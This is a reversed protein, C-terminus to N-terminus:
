WYDICFFFNSIVIINDSSLWKHNISSSAVDHTRSKTSRWYSRSRFTCWSNSAGYHCWMSWAMYLSTRTTIQQSPGPHFNPCVWLRRICVTIVFHFHHQFPIRTYILGKSYIPSLHYLTKFYKRYVNFICGGETAQPIDHPVQLACEM